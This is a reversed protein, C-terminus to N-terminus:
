AAAVFVTYRQVNQPLPGALEVGEFQLIASIQTIAIEVDGNAVYTHAPGSLPKLKSKITEAIGLRELLENLYRSSASHEVYGISKAAMLTRIFEETTKVDPKLAGKRVAIGIGSRAIPTRTNGDLKGQKILDDVFNPTLIAVDLPVGKEIDSKIVGSEGWSVVLKHGTSQEIEAGIKALVPKLAVPSMVRIEAANGVAIFAFVNLGVALLREWKM